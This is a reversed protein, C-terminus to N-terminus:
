VNTLFKLHQRIKKNLKLLTSSLLWLTLSSSSISFASAMTYHLFCMHNKHYIYLLKENNYHERKQGIHLHYLFLVYWTCTVPISSKDWSKKPLNSSMERYGCQLKWASRRTQFFFPLFKFIIIQTSCLRLWAKLELQDTM